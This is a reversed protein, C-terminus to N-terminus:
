GDGVRRPAALELILIGAQRVVWDGRVVVILVEMPRAGVGKGIDEFLGDLDDGGDDSVGGGVFREPQDCPVQEAMLDSPVVVPRGHDAEGILVEGATRDALLKGLELLVRVPAFNRHFMRGPLFAHGNFREEAVDLTEQRDDRWLPSQAADPLSEGLGFPPPRQGQATRDFRTLEREKAVDLRLVDPGQHRLAGLVPEFAM